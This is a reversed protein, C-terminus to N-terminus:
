QSGRKELADLIRLYQYAPMKGPDRKWSRVTEYNIGSIEAVYVLTRGEPFVKNGIQEAYRQRPSKMARHSM